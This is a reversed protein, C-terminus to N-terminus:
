QIKAMRELFAPVWIEPDDTNLETRVTDAIEINEATASLLPLWYKLKGVGMDFQAILVQGGQKIVFRRSNKKLVKIEDFMAPTIGFRAYGEQEAMENPLWIQTPVQQIVAPAYPTALADEPSQTDMLVCESRMRGAKLWEKITEATSEFSLPVWYEAIVNLMLQGQTHMQNKMFFLTNLLVEVVEPHKSTYSKKLIQTGDFALRTQEGPIFTNVPADLVWAYQGNQSRAWKALRVHLSNEGHFPIYQLLLSIGRNTVHQHRMVAEIAEQIQREESASTHAKGGVCIHVLEFLTQRLEPSDPLQFPNIGTSQGPRITFYAAGLAKFVHILSRNYDIAFLMPSWRSFMSIVMAELTTKGAGTMGTFSMHGPYKEGRNDQGIPSDHANLFYMGGHSNLFPMLASGDGVPNGRAKGAPIANLSFGCALNETSRVSRYIVKTMAPYQAYYTFINSMTSRVFTTDKNNFMSSMRAGNREAEALTDGYVILAAHYMGMALQGDTIGDIADWLEEVQETEGDTSILNNAHKKLSDKADNRPLYHFTQVLVFDMPLNIAEDWMGPSSLGPYDRLDYTTAFRQGGANPRVEVFDYGGFNAVSDIVADGLRTDSLLIDLEYGNFILSFFRGIQSVMAGSPLAEVGMIAPEFDALMMSASHLLERMKDIGEDLNQYKLILVVAYNVSRYRGARFPSTYCAVMDAIATLPFEYKADLVVPSKTTYTQVMLNAGEKKGIALFFRNLQEFREDLVTQAIGESPSGRLRVVSLLRQGPLTVMNEDVHYEMLDALIDSSM